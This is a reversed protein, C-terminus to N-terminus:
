QVESYFMSFLREFVMFIEGEYHFGNEGKMGNGRLFMLYQHAPLLFFFFFFFLSAPFTSMKQLHLCPIQPYKSSYSTIKPFEAVKVDFLQM